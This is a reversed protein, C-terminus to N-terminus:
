WSFVQGSPLAYKWINLVNAVDKQLDINMIKSQYLLFVTHHHYKLLKLNTLISPNQTLKHCIVGGVPWSMKYPNSYFMDQVKAMM